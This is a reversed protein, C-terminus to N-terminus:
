RTWHPPFILSRRRAAHMQGTTRKVLWVDSFNPSFILLELLNLYRFFKLQEPSYIHKCLIKETPLNYFTFYCNLKRHIYKSCKPVSYIFKDSTEIPCLCSPNCVFALCNSAETKNNLVKLKAHLDHKAQQISNLTRFFTRM